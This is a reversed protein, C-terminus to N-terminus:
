RSCFIANYLKAVAKLEQAEVNTQKRHCLRLAHVELAVCVKQRGRHHMVIIMNAYATCMGYFDMQSELSKNLSWVAALEADKWM